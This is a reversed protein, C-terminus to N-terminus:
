RSEVNCGSSARKSPVQNQKGLLQPGGYEKDWIGALYNRWTVASTAVNITVSIDSLQTSEGPRTSRTHLHLGEVWTGEEHGGAFFNGEGVLDRIFHSGRETLAGICGLKMM